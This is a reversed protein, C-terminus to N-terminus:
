SLFKRRVKVQKMAHIVERKKFYTRSGIRYFPIVGSNMWSHITPLSVKCLEAVESRKLLVEDESNIEKSTLSHIAETIKSSFLEELREEFERVPITVVEITQQM